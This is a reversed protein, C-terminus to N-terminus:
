GSATRPFLPPETAVPLTRLIPPLGSMLEIQAEHNGPSALFVLTYRGAEHDRPSLVELGLADRYFRLSAEIDTVRVMTHLYKMGQLTAPGAAARAAAPQAAARADRDGVGPEDGGAEIFVAQVCLAVRM